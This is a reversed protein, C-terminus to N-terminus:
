RGFITDWISGIPSTTADTGDVGNLIGDIIGSGNCSTCVDPLSETKYWGTGTSYCHSGALLGTQTCYTKQITEGSKPFEKEELGKHIRDFVEIFIKGAPNVSFNMEKQQDYGYWVASMYYPTGGVFWRDNQDDTTGTKCMIQFERVHDGDGYTSTSVTQLMECMIDSTAASIIQEGSHDTELLVESGSSNTVKYYCYPEYYKGGNGFASYAAAMEVTSVGNTMAGTALPALSADRTEDVRSLHFKNILFDMSTKITVRENVVRAAVTNLSQQIAYVTTVNSNRGHGGDVNKPWLIGNYYIAYDLLPTSWTLLNKEVAPAYASLPKISSGPQRYSNAARNLCRNGDKKGAQGVIGVVRGEYDMITMASQAAPHEETDEEKKFTIRNTYVDEMEKQVDLDVAAYIKLGGYYIMDVAQSTTLGQSEKLDSIVNDIVYDIYFSQYEETDTSKNEDNDDNDNDGSAVYGESNTFVMKYAVAEDYESQTIAGQELMDKLCELQRTRNDDPNYLPNYKGPFQTISVVAACEALNLDWVDKGFYTEAATQVGYCGSGLYLTNLYAELILDKGYHKELNLASLIENYKRVITVDKEGTLNKILQQTITSAGQSFSYKTIISGVRIWDVGHHTRFRKDELAIAAMKMNEPIEDYDVWIRNEEGHLRAIEVEKGTSDYAYIISTQNQSSKKEELDIVTEGNVVSLANVFVYGGIVCCTLVVVLMLSLFVSLIVRGRKSMKKKKTKQGKSPPTVPAPKENSQNM